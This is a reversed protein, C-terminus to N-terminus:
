PHLLCRMDSCPSRVSVAMALAAAAQRHLYATHVRSSGGLCLSLSLGAREGSIEGLLNHILLLLSDLRRRLGAPYFQRRLLAWHAGAESAVRHALRRAALVKQQACGTSSASEMFCRPSVKWTAGGRGSHPAAQWATSCPGQKGLQSGQPQNNGPNSM